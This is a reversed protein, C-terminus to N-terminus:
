LFRQEYSSSFAGKLQSSSLVCVLFGQRAGRSPNVTLAVHYEINWDIRLILIVIIDNLLSVVDYM